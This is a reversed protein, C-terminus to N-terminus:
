KPKIPEFYPNLFESPLSKPKPTPSPLPTPQTKRKKAQVAAKKTKVPPTKKKRSNKKHSRKKAPKKPKQKSVPSVKKQHTQNWDKTNHCDQCTLSYKKQHPDKHCSVCQTKTELYTTANTKKKTIANKRKQTHCNTCKLKAHKGTLPWGTEKHKFNLRKLGLLDFKRGKHEPHCSQCKKKQYKFHYGTKTKYKTQIETHCTLCTQVRDGKHCQFCQTVGGLNKEHAKSLDGPSLFNANAGPGILLIILIYLRGFKM